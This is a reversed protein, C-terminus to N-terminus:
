IREEGPYNELAYKPKINTKSRRLDNIRIKYLLHNMHSKGRILDITDQDSITNINAIQLLIIELEGILEKLYRHKYPKLASKLRAAERILDRARQQHTNFDILGSDGQDFDINDMTLLIVRSRDFFRHTETLLRARKLDLEAQSRTFLGAQKQNSEIERPSQLFFKGIVIGTAFIVILAMAQALKRRSFPELAAKIATWIQKQSLPFRRETERPLRQVTKESYESWFVSGPDPAKMDAVTRLLSQDDALIKKCKSCNDIHRDFNDREQDSLEGALYGDINLQIKKCQNM